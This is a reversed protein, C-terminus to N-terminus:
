GDGRGFVLGTLTHNIQLGAFQEGYTSFGVGPLPLMAEALEDVRGAATAEWLRGGCNFLLLGAPEAVSAMAAELGARTAAVLDGAAMPYLLTGEEIAGGMLLAEGQVNMVSRLFLKDGLSFGFVIQALASEPDERMAAEDLGFLEAIQAPAPFGNIRTVLRRPPDAGTVIVPEGERQYHHLHFPAFPRGPALMLLVAAGTAVRGDVAVQTAEFRFDDAASGGALAVKPAAAAVAALLLEEAGSLGDTLSILVRAEPPTDAFRADLEEVLAVAREYPREGLEEILAAEARAPPALALAVLEGSTCGRAGIEGCTTCGVSLSNPFAERLSGAVSAFDLTASAFFLVLAPEEGDLGARLERVLGELQASDAHAVALGSSM